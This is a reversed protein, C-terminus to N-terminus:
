IINNPASYSNRGYIEIKGDEELNMVRGYITYPSLKLKMHTPTHANGTKKRDSLLDGNNTSCDLEFKTSLYSIGIDQDESFNM